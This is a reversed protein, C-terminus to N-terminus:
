PTTLTVSSGAERWTSLYAAWDARDIIFPLGESGPLRRHLGDRDTRVYLVRAAFEAIVGGFDLLPLLEEVPVEPHANIEHIFLELAEILEM